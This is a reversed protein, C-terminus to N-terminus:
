SEITVETLEPKSCSVRNTTNWEKPILDNRLLEVHQDYRLTSRITSISKVSAEAPGYDDTSPSGNVLIDPNSKSSFGLTLSKKKEDTILVSLNISSNVMDNSDSLQVVENNIAIIYSLSDDARLTVTGNLLPKSEDDSQVSKLKKAITVLKTSWKGRNQTLSTRPLNPENLENIMKDFKDAFQDLRKAQFIMIDISNRLLFSAVVETVGLNEVYDQTFSGANNELKWYGVHLAMGNKVPRKSRVRYGKLRRESMPVVKVEPRLVNLLSCDVGEVL